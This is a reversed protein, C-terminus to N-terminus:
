VAGSRLDEDTGEGRVLEHILNKWFPQWLPRPLEWMTVWRFETVEPTTMLTGPNLCRGLVWHTEWKEDCETCDDDTVCIIKRPKLLLGLEERSERIACMNVTETPELRGGPLSWTGTGCSRGRRIVPFLGDDRTAFVAVGKRRSM